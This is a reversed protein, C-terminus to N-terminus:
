MKPKVIKWNTKSISFSASKGKAPPRLTYRTFEVNGTIGAAKGTGGVIICTGKVVPPKDPSSWTGSGKYTMFVNDGNTLTAVIFGSDEIVGKVVQMSGLIRQSANHFLGKGSGSTMIGCVDYNIQTYGKTMPLVTLDGLYYGKGTSSGEEACVIGVVSLSLLLVMVWIKKMIAEM